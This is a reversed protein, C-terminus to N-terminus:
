NQPVEELLTHDHHHQHETGTDHDHDLDSEEYLLNPDITEAFTEALKKRDLNVIVVQRREQNYTWGFQYLLVWRSPTPVNAKCIVFFLFCNNAM